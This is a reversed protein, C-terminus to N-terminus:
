EDLEIVPMSKLKRSDTEYLCSGGVTASPAVTRKELVYECATEKSINLMKDGATGKACLNGIIRTDVFDLRPSLMIRM